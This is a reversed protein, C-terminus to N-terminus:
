RAVTLGWIEKAGAKKLALGVERITAGTTAVDDFIIYTKTPDIKGRFARIVAFKGSLNRLRQERDLEAQPKTGSKKIVLNSEFEWNLSQAILQGLLEAQNFGRWNKRKTHLPVPVLVPNVPSFREQEIKAVSVRALEEAIEFAFKYKIAIIAKRIVGEYRYISFSGALPTDAKCVSHTKGQFSLMNCAPCKDQALRATRSCVECIYGGKKGCGLCNKPFILDLLSM